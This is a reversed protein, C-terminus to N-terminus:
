RPLGFAYVKNGGSTVFLKGNSIVPAMQACSAGSCGVSITVSWLLQGNRADFADWEGSQSSAYVVGNAVSPGMDSQAAATWVVAGTAADLAFLAAETVFVKGYAVAPSGNIQFTNLVPASWVEEGTAANVATVGEPHHAFFVKGYAAAPTGVSAASIQWLQAGDDADYATLPGGNGMKFVRGNDIVPAQTDLSGHDDVMWKMAGTAAEFAWLDANTQGLYLTRGGITPSAQVALRPDTTWVIEGTNANYASIASRHANAFVLGRSIAASNEFLSGDQEPGIWLTEGTEADLAYMRVEPSSSGIFVKGNSVVPASFWFGDAESEWLQTLSGVNEPGIETEFKNFGTHAANFGEQIWDGKATPSISRDSGLSNPATAIVALVVSWCFLLPVVRLWAM